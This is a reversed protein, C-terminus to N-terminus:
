SQEEWTRELRELALALLQPAGQFYWYTSSPEVHGLFTSLLPLQAEVNQDQRYWRLLTRLVFTHRMDHLRASRGLTDYDLGCHRRLRDFERWVTGRHLRAGAASILFSPDKPHPCLEDCARAYADLARVTSPHLAVERSKGNKDRRVTLRGEALEVDGSLMYDRFEGLLQEVATLAASDGSPIVGLGGLYGLLPRLSKPSVRCCYGARRREAAFQEVLNPTLEAVAVGATEMWRSVSALYELQAQAPWLRYGREVLEVLFGDAFPALPGSVRVRDPAPKAM